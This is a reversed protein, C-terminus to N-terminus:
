RKAVPVTPLSSAVPALLATDPRDQEILWLAMEVSPTPGMVSGGASQVARGMDEALLFNEEVVLVKLEALVPYRILEVPGGLRTARPVSGAATRELPDDARKASPM